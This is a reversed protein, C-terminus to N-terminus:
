RKSPLKKMLPLFWSFFKNQVPKYFNRDPIIFEAVIFIKGKLFLSPKLLLM